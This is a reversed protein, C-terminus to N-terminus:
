IPVQRTSPEDSAVVGVLRRDKKRKGVDNSTSQGLGGVKPSSLCLLKTLAVFVVSLECWARIRARLRPRRTSFTM